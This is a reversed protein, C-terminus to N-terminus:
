FSLLLALVSEVQQQQSDEHRQGHHNQQQRADDTAKGSEASSSRSPRNSRPIGRRSGGIGVLSENTGSGRECAGSLTMYCQHFVSRISAWAFCSRAVNNNECGELPDYIVIPDVTYMGTVPDISGGSHRPVYSSIKYSGYPRNRYRHFDPHHVGSVDVATAQSEFHQGYFLLFHMLLKGATPEGTCLVELVDNSGQPFPLQRRSEEAGGGGSRAPVSESASASVASAAASATPAQPKSQEDAVSDTVVSASTIPTSESLKKAPETQKAEKDGNKKRTSQDKRQAAPESLPYKGTDNDTKVPPDETTASPVQNDEKSKKSQKCENKGSETSVPDQPQAPAQTKTKAISAWSKPGSPAKPAAEAQKAPVKEIDKKTQPAKPKANGKLADKFSFGGKSQVTKETTPVNNAAKTSGQQKTSKSQKSQESSNKSSVPGLNPAEGGEDTQTQKSEQKVARSAKAIPTATSTVSASCDTDKKRCKTEPQCLKCDDANASLPAEAENKNQQTPAKKKSKPQKPAASPGEVAAEVARRQKEMRRMEDQILKRERIVSVALLLVAFSSLGGSYPENLRRQALLEKIVMIMQVAATAEPPLNSETCVEHVFAQSFITSGIGGHEPGEFTIDISILGNMIDAGRWPMVGPHIFPMPAAGAPGNYYPQQPQGQAHGQGEAGVPCDEQSQPQQQQPHPPPMPVPPMHQHQMMWVAGGPVRTPDALLKIVPVTATPIAKVQVAWPHMELEAALRLVKLGSPSPPPYYQYYQPPYQQYHPPQQPQQQQPQPQSAHASLSEDNPGEQKPDSESSDGGSSGGKNKSKKGKGKQQQQQGKGDQAPPGQQHGSNPEIDNLGCIVVDLDSSPLDLQTACSGYTEVRAHGSFVKSAADQLAGLLANRETRRISLAMARREMFVAMEDSLKDCLKVLHYGVDDEKLEHSRGRPRHRTAHPAELSSAVSSSASVTNCIPLPPQPSTDQPPQAAGTAATKGPTATEDTSVSSEVGSVTAPPARAKDVAATLGRTGGSTSRGSVTDPLTPATKQSISAKDGGGGAKPTEGPMVGSVPTRGTPPPGAAGAKKPARFKQKKGRDEGDVVNPMSTTRDVSLQLNGSAGVVVDRLSASKSEAGAPANQAEAARKREENARRRGEARLAARRRRDVEQEVVFSFLFGFIMSLTLSM